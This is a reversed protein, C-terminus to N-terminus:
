INFEFDTNEKFSEVIKKKKVVEKKKEITKIYKKLYSKDLDKSLDLGEKDKPLHKTFDVVIGGKYVSILRKKVVRLLKM